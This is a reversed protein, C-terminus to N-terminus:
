HNNILIKKIEENYPSNLKSIPIFKLTKNNDELFTLNPKINNSKLISLSFKKPYTIIEKSIILEENIEDGLKLEIIYPKTKNDELFTLIKKDKSLIYARTILNFKYCEEKKAIGITEHSQLLVERYNEKFFTLIIKDQNNIKTIAKNIKFWIMKFGHNSKIREEWEGILIYNESLEIYNECKINWKQNITEKINKIKDVEIKPIEINGNKLNIELAVKSDSYFLVGLRM